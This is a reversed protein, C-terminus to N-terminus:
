GSAQPISPNVTFSLQIRHLGANRLTTPDPSYRFSGPAESEANRLAATDEGYVLRAPPDWNIGPDQRASRLSFDVTERIRARGATLAVPISATTAESAPGVLLPGAAGDRASAASPAGALAWQPLPSHAANVTIPDILIGTALEDPYVSAGSGLAYSPPSGRWTASRGNGSADPVAATFPEEFAYRAWPQGSSAERFPLGRSSEVDPYRADIRLEDVAGRFRNVADGDAGFRLTTINGSFATFQPSGVEEGMVYFDAESDYDGFFFLHIAVHTWVGLPVRPGSWEASVFGGMMPNNGTARLFLRGDNAKRKLEYTDGRQNRLYFLTTDSPAQDVRVWASLLMEGATHLEDPQPLDLYAGESPTM